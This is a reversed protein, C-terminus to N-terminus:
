RQPPEVPWFHIVTPRQVPPNAERHRKWAANLAERRQCELKLREENQRYWAHLADIPALDDGAPTIGDGSEVIYGARESDFSDSAPLLHERGRIAEEGIGMLLTYYTRGDGAEFGRVGRMFNFDINSYVTHRQGGSEWRIRSIERDYITVSLTLIVNELYNTRQLYYLEVLSLDFDRAVELEEETFKAYPDTEEEPEPPPIDPPSVRNMILNTGRERSVERTELVDFEIRKLPRAAEREARAAVEAQIIADAEADSLPLLEHSDGAGAVFWPLSTLLLLYRIKM